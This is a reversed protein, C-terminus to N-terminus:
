EYRLADVPNGRAAQIGLWGVTIAAIMLAGGGGLLFLDPSLEIRYVFSDLWGRSLYYAVPWALLNSVAALLVLDKSLLNVIDLVTAGVTKRVGIEKIRRSVALSAQGFLGMCAILIAFAASAGVIKGRRQDARYRSAVQEDLFRPRYPLDEGLEAWVLKIEDMTESVRDAQIRILGTKLMRGPDVTMVQGMIEDHLSDFHYDKFIGVIKPESINDRYNLIHDGVKFGSERAFRENVMASTGSGDKELDFYRGDVLSIGMAQLYDPGVSTSYVGVNKERDGVKLGFRSYDGTYRAVAKVGPLTEVRQLFREGRGEVNAVASHFDLSVLPDRTYGLDKDRIFNLQRVIVVTSILLSISVAYQLATLGGTIRNSHRRSSRGSLVATPPLRSLVFGPYGGGVSGVILLLAVGVIAVPFLGMTPFDLSRSALANFSPLLLVAFILAFLLGLTATVIAEGWFQKILSSRQAGMVKRIGVETTRTVSRSLSLTMFNVCSLALVVAGIYALMEILSRDAKRVYGGRSLRDFRVDLLRQLVFKFADPGKGIKENQRLSEIKEALLSSSLGSVKESLVSGDTGPTTEVYVETALGDYRMKGYGSHNEYPILLDFLLTATRPPAEIVGIIVHDILEGQKTFQITRGLLSEPDGASEGTLDAALQRTIVVDKPDRLEKRGAVLSYTFMETFDGDVLLFPKRLMRNKTFGVLAGSRIMRSSRVIEPVTEVLRDGIEEHTLAWRSNQGKGNIEHLVRFIRDHKEHHRDFSWDHHVYLALLLTCALGIGLGVVNIVAYVKERMLNRVAVTIYNRIM